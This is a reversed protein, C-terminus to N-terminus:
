DTLGGSWERVVDDISDLERIGTAWQHLYPPLYEQDAEDVLDPMEVWWDAIRISDYNNSEFIVHTALALEIRRRLNFEDPDFRTPVDIAEWGQASLEEPSMEGLSSTWFGLRALGPQVMSSYIVILPLGLTFVDSPGSTIDADVTEAAEVQIERWELDSIERDDELDAEDVPHWELVERSAHPTFNMRMRQGFLPLIPSNPQIIQRYVRVEDHGVILNVEHQAAIALSEHITGALLSAADESLAEWGAHELLSQTEPEPIRRGAFILVGGPDSDEEDWSRYVQGEITSDGGPLRLHIRVPMGVPPISSLEEESVWGAAAGPAGFLVTVLTEM